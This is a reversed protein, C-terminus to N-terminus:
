LSQAVKAVRKDYHLVVFFHYSAGVPNDIDARPCAGVPACDNCAALQLVDHLIRTRDGTREQPAVLEDRMFVPAALWGLPQRYM